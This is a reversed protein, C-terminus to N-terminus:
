LAMLWGGLGLCAQSRASSVRAATNSMTSTPMPTYWRLKLVPVAM